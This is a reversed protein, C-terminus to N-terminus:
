TNNQSRTYIVSSVFCFMFCHTPHLSFSLSHHTNIKSTEVFRFIDGYNNANRANGLIPPPHDSLLFYKPEWTKNGIPPPLVQQEIRLTINYLMISYPLKRETEYSLKKVLIHMVNNARNSLRYQMFCLPFINKKVGSYYVARFLFMVTFYLRWLETPSLM